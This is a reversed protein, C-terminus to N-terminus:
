RLWWWPAEGCWGDGPETPEDLAAKRKERARDAFERGEGVGDGRTSAEVHTGTHWILWRVLRNM